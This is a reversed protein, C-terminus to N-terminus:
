SVGFRAFASPRAIAAASGDVLVVAAYQDDIDAMHMTLNLAKFEKLQYM